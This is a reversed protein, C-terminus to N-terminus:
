KIKIICIQIQVQVLKHARMHKYIIYLQDFLIKINAFINYCIYDNIKQITFKILNSLIETKRLKTTLKFM